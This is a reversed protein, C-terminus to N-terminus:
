SCEIEKFSSGYEYAYKICKKCIHRRTDNSEYIKDDGLNEDGCFDCYIKRM